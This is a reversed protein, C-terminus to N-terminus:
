AEVPGRRTPVHRFGKYCRHLGSTRSLVNYSRNSNFPPDLYILDVSESTVHKRLVELNDGDFPLNPLNVMGACVIPELYPTVSGEGDPRRQPSEM